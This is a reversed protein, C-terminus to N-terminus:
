FNLGPLPIAYTETLNVGLGDLINEQLDFGYNKRAETIKKGLDDDDSGPEANVVTSDDDDGGLTRLLREFRKENALDQAYAGIKSGAPNFDGQFVDILDNVGATVGRIISGTNSGPEEYAIGVPKEATPPAKAVDSTRYFNKDLDAGFKNFNNTDMAAGFSPTPLFQGEPNYIPNPM